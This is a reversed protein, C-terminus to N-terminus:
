KFSIDVRNTSNLYDEYSSSLGCISLLEALAVDFAYAYQLQEIHSKALNLEADVVESSTAMGQEFARRKIRLYEEAFEINKNYSLTLNAISQLDNYSKVILTQIDRKAKQELLEVRKSTSKAAKYDSRGKTGNFIKYSLNVGVMARPVIDSLQYDVVNVAGIATLHPLLSSRDARMKEESLAKLHEVDKLLPSQELAYDIYYAVPHLSSMIFLSTTPSFEGEANITTSLARNVSVVDSKSKAEEAKARELFMEAYLREGKAIQGNRELAIAMNYHHQMGEVVMRRVDVVRQALILGFYRQSLETTLAGSEKRLENEGREINIKAANNAADIKGGMYIPMAMDLGVVAFSQDQLTLAGFDFGGLLKSMESIVPQLDVPIDLKSIGGILPEKLDNLNLELDNSMYTYNAMVGVQPMRLASTSRKAYHLAEIKHEQAKLALSSDMAWEYAQTYSIPQTKDTSQQATASSATALLTFLLLLKSRIM